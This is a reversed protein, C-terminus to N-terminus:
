SPIRTLCVDGDETSTRARQRPGLLVGAVTVSRRDVIATSSYTSDWGFCGKDIPYLTVPGCPTFSPPGNMREHGFVIRSVGMEDHLQTWISHTQIPISHMRTRTELFTKAYNTWTNAMAQLEEPSGKEQFLNKTVQSFEANSHNRTLISELMQVTPPTHLYLTGNRLHYLKSRIFYEIVKHGNETNLAERRLDPTKFHNFTSMLTKDSVKDLMNYANIPAKLVAPGFIEDARPHLRLIERMGPYRNGILKVCPPLLLSAAFSDHNGWLTIVRGELERRMDLICSAIEMGYEGRDALIDGAFLLEADKELFISGDEPDWVELDSLNRLLAGMKGNLDGIALTRTIGRGSNDRRNLDANHPSPGNM